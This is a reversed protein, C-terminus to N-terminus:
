SLQNSHLTPSLPSLHLTQRCIGPVALEIVNGLQTSRYTVTDDFALEEWLLMGIIHPFNLIWQTLLPTPEPKIMRMEYMM